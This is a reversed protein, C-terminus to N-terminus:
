RRKWPPLADRVRHVYSGACRLRLLLLLWLWLRLRWGARLRRRAATGHVRREDQLGARPCAPARRHGLGALVHGRAVSGAHVAEVPRRRRRRGRELLLRRRLARGWRPCAGGEAAGLVLLLLVVRGHHSRAGRRVARGDVGHHRALRVRGDVVCAVDARARRRLAARRGGRLALVRVRRRRHRQPHPQAREHVLPVAVRRAAHVAGPRRRHRRVAAWRRRRPEGRRQGAGHLLAHPGRPLARRRRGLSVPVEPVYRRRVRRIRGRARGAGADSTRRHGRIPLVHACHHSPGRKKTKNQSKPGLSRKPWANHPTILYLPFFCYM